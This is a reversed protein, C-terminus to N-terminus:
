RGLRDVRDHFEKQLQPSAADAKVVKPARVLAQVRAGTLV